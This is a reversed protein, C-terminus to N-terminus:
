HKRNTLALAADIDLESPAQRQEGEPAGLEATEGADTDAVYTTVPNVDVPPGPDLTVAGNAFTYALMFLGSDDFGSTEFVVQTDTFDVVWIYRDPGPQFRDNLADRLMVRQDNSYLDAFRCELRAISRRFTSEDVAGLAVLAADVVDDAVVPTSPEVVPATRQTGALELAAKAEDLSLTGAAKRKALDVVLDMNVTTGNITVSSGGRGVAPESASPETMVKGDIVWSRSRMQAGPVAGRVVISLEDMEAAVMAEDGGLALQEPTLEDKKLWEQRDFGVSMDKLVPNPKSTLAMALRASPVLDPDAFEFLVDCTGDADKYDIGQGLVHDLNYWDHGYLITPMRAELGANFCGPLWITGYDDVVDYTVATAWRKRGNSGPVERFETAYIRREIVRPAIDTM